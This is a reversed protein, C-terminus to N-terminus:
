NSELRNQDLLGANGFFAVTDQAIGSVMRLDLLINVLYNVWKHGGNREVNATRSVADRPM